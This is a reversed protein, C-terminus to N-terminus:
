YKSRPSFNIARNLVSESFEIEMEMEMRKKSIINKTDEIVVDYIKLLLKKM